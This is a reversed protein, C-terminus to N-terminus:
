NPMQIVPLGPPLATTPQSETVKNAQGNIEKPLVSNQAAKKKEEEQELFFSPVQPASNDVASKTALGTNVSNSAVSSSSSVMTANFTQNPSSQFGSQLARQGGGQGAVNKSSSVTVSGAPQQVIVPNIGESSSIITQSSNPVVPVLTSLQMAGSNVVNNYGYMKSLNNNTTFDNSPVTNQNNQEAPYRSTFKGMMQRQYLIAAVKREERVENLKKKEVEQQKEYIIKYDDMTVCTDGDWCRGKGCECGYTIAQTCISFENLKSECSDTCGNGFQRWVGKASECLPRDDFTTSRGIQAFSTLSLLTLLLAIIIPM